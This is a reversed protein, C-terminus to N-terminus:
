LDDADTTLITIHVATNAEIPDTDARYKLTSFISFFIAALVIKAATIFVTRFRKKIGLYPTFPAAKAVRTIVEYLM